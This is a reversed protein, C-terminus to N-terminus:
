YGERRRGGVLAASLKKTRRGRPFTCVTPYMMSVVVTSVCVPSFFFFRPRSTFSASLEYESARQLLPSSLCSVGLLFLCLSFHCWFVLVAAAVPSSPTVPTLFFCPRRFRHPLPCCTAAAAATAAPSLVALKTLGAQNLIRTGVLEAPRTISSQRCIGVVLLKDGFFFFFRMYKRLCCLIQSVLRPPASCELANGTARLNGCTCVYTLVPRFAWLCLGLIETSRDLGSRVGFGVSPCGAPQGFCGGGGRREGRVLKINNEITADDLAAPLHKKSGDESVMGVCNCARFKSTQCGAGKCTQRRVCLTVTHPTRHARSRTCRHPAPSCLCAEVAAGFGPKRYVIVISELPTAPSEGPLSSGISKPAIFVHLSPLFFFMVFM